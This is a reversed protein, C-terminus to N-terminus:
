EIIGDYYTNNLELNYYKYILVFLLGPPLPPCLWISVIFYNSFQVFVGQIRKM